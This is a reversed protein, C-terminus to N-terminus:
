IKGSRMIHKTNPRNKRNFSLDQSYDTERTEVMNSLQTSRRIPIQQKSAQYNIYKDSVFKDFQNSVRIKQNRKVTTNVYTRDMSRMDLDNASDGM